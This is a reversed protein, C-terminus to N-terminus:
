QKRSKRSARGILAAMLAILAAIAAVLGVTRVPAEDGTSASTKVQTKFPERMKVKKTKEATPPTFAKTPEDDIVVETDDPPNEPTLPPIDPIEPPEEPPEEPITENKFTPLEGNELNKGAKGYTVHSKLQTGDRVVTITATFETEDFKIKKADDGSVEGVKEKITYKYEGPEDFELSTFEVEGGNNKKSEILKGKADYLEFTFQRGEPAKGDLTKVARLPPTVPLFYDKPTNTIVWTGSEEDYKAKSKYCEQTEMGGRPKYSMDEKVTYEYPVKTEEGKEDTRYKPQEVFKGKWDDKESVILSKVMKGDRYLDFKLREFREGERGEDDWKKEFPIDVHEPIDGIFITGNAGLGGGNTESRNDNIRVKAMKSSEIVDPDTGTVDTKMRFVEYNEHLTETDIFDGNEDYWHYPAGNLMYEATYTAVRLRDLFVPPLWKEEVYDYEWEVYDYAIDCDGYYPTTWDERPARGESSNDYIVTGKLESFGGTGSGCWAIAGGEWKASNRAFEVNTLYLQGNVIGERSTTTSHYGNVYIGGGAHYSARTSAKALNNTIDGGYIKGVTNCQVLIGGASCYATNGDIKGGTMTFEITGGQKVSTVYFDGLSVGGGDMLASNNTIEGGSMTMKAGYRLCVGGGYSDDYTVKGSADNGWLATNDDIKGGSMTITGGDALIGGGKVGYNSLIKSGELMTINGKNSYVAGGYTPHTKAGYYGNNRLVAGEGLTLNANDGVHILSKQAKNYNAADGDIITNTIKLSAGPKIDILYGTFDTHRKITRGELDLVGADQEDAANAVFSKMISD